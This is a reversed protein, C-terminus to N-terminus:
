EEIVPMEIEIGWTRLTNWGGKRVRYVYTTKQNPRNVEERRPDNLLARVKSINEKSKFFRIAELGKMRDTPSNSKVLAFAKKELREDAPVTVYVLDGVNMEATFSEPAPLVFTHVRRVNKPAKSIAERAVRIVSESDRLLRIDASIANPHETDLEIFRNNLQNALDSVVLLRSGKKELRALLSAYNKPILLGQEKSASVPNLFPAKLCEEIAFIASTSKPPANPDLKEHKKVTGIFVHDANIVLSDVSEFLVKGDQAHASGIACFFLLLMFGSIKM